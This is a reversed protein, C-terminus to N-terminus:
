ERSVCGSLFPIGTHTAQDWLLGATIVLSTIHLDLGRPVLRWPSPDTTEWVLINRKTGRRVIVRQGLDFSLPGQKICSNADEGRTPGVARSALSIYRQHTGGTKGLFLLWQELVLGEDESISKGMVVCVSLWGPMLYHGLPASFYCMVKTPNFM